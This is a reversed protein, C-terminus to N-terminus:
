TNIKEVLLLDALDLTQEFIVNAGAEILERREGFGSLVGATQAGTARGAHIDVTTDGVM